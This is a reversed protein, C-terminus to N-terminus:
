KRDRAVLMKLAKRMLAVFEQEDVLTDPSDCFRDVTRNCVSNREHANTWTLYPGRPRLLESFLDYQAGFQYMVVVVAGPRLYLANSMGAGQMGVLVSFGSVAAVQQGFSMGDFQVGEFTAQLRPQAAAAARLLEQQNVIRRRGGRLVLGVRPLPERPPQPPLSSTRQQAFRARMRAGLKRVVGPDIDVTGGFGATADRLCLM